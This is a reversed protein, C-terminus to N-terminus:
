RPFYVRERLWAASISPNLPMSRLTGGRADGFVASGVEAGDRLTLTRTTVSLNGARGTAGPFVDTRLGSPSDQLAGFAAIEDAQITVAGGIGAGSIVSEVQSGNSLSLRQTNM